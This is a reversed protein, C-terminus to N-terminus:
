SVNGQGRFIICPDPQEKLYKKYAARAEDTTCGSEPPVAPRFFLQGTAQRKSLAPGLQNIVVRKAGKQEYTTEMDNVFPLPVQDVNLRCWPPYRGYKKRTAKAVVYPATAAEADEIEVDADPRRRVAVLKLRDLANDAEELADYAAQQEANTALICKKSCYYDGDSPMWQQTCMIFSHVPRKCQVCKHWGSVAEGCAACDVM